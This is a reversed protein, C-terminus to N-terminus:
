IFMMGDFGLRRERRLPRVIWLYALGFFALGQGVMVAIIAVKMTTPPSDPGSEVPTFFPGTLWKLLIYIQFTWLLCGILAWFKVPATTRPALVAERTPTTSAVFM